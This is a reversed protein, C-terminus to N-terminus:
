FEIQTDFEGNFIVDSSEPRASPLEGALELKKRQRWTLNPPPMQGSLGNVIGVSGQPLDSLVM